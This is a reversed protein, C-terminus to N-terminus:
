LLEELRAKDFGVIEEGNVIIVPVGMYGKQMLEKRASPDTSINKEEYNVGKEQLYEKALVCYGCSNSSYIIVNSM